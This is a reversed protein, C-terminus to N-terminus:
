VSALAIAGILISYCGAAAVISWAGPRRAVLTAGLQAPPEEATVYGPSWDSGDALVWRSRSQYQLSLIAALALAAAAVLAPPLHDIEGMPAVYRITVFSTANNLAHLLIPATLSKSTLYVYQFAWGLPIVGAAQAPDIHMLGFLFSTLLMGRWVGHRAVLGRGVFGRFFIEEGLAPFLCGGILVLWLPFKGFDVLLEGFWSPLVKSIWTSLENAVLWLPAVTLVVLLSQGLGLGRWALLPRTRWCYHAVVIVLAVVIVSATGVPVLLVNLQDFDNLPYEILTCVIFIPVAVVITGLTQGLLLMLMWVLSMGFGPGPPPQPEDVLLEVYEEVLVVDSTNTTIGAIETTPAPVDEQPESM